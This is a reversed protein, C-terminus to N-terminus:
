EISDLLPLLEDLNKIVYNPKIKDYLIGNRNFHCTLIGANIGGCIDSSLSDGVIITEEHRFGDIRSFCEDFFAKSPKAFGIDESIFIMDFYERVGSDDLRPNQVSPIGNTAMFLRYRGMSKFADLLEKAGPLFDHEESLLKEYIEQTKIPSASIGYESFLREFRGFLVQDKTMEGRELARWCDLNIEIYRKILNETPDTGMQKLAKILAVREGKQFDLITDDLDLFVNKIM